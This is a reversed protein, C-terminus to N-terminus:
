PTSKRNITSKRPSLSRRRRPTDSKGKWKTPSSMPNKPTKRPSLLNRPALRKEFKNNIRMRPIPRSEYFIEVCDFLQPCQQLDKMYSEVLCGKSSLCINRRVYTMPQQPKLGLAVWRVWEIYFQKNEPHSCDIIKYLHQILDFILTHGTKFNSFDKKLTFEGPFTAMFSKLSGKYKM